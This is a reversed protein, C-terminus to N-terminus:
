VRVGATEFDNVREPQEGPKRSADNTVKPEPAQTAVQGLLDAASKVPAFSRVDRSEEEPYPPVFCARKVYPPVFPHQIRRWIM